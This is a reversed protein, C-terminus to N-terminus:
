YKKHKDKNEAIKQVCFLYAITLTITNLVVKLLIETIDHIDTKNTASVQTGLSFWQGAALWQCVKDCLTTNLVGRRFIYDTVNIKCWKFHLIEQDGYSSMSLDKVMVRVM